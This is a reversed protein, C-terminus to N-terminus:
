LEPNEGSFARKFVTLQYHPNYYKDIIEYSRERLLNRDMNNVWDKIKDRLDNVDNEKFFFGNYGDEVAEAEPMQNVMNDHTGVPTGFSLSHIGTLGVNGPSVCLDSMSLFKGIVEEDYCAGTFHLWKNELGIKGMDELKEREPGEGMVVLNVEPVKDNIQNVAQLLMDLKKVKTLRGIFIVVPLSPDNFFPFVESKELGQLKQTLLKHADYDLSNFVVYLNDPKFGHRIHFKKSRREYLLIKNGLRFFIKKLKLKLGKERGYLGHAWFFVKIGRLRCISAAIWTSPRSMESTFIAYDFKTGCCERIVKTQWLLTEKKWWYNKVKHLRHKNSSFGEKEFDIAAVGNESDGFFFHMDWGPNNLLVNWIPRRYHPAIDAFFKITIM